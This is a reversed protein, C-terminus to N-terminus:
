ELISFATEDSGGGNAKNWSLEVNENTKIIFMDNGVSGFSSTHGDIAFGGEATLILSVATENNVGGIRYQFKSESFIFNQTIILNLLLILNLKKM